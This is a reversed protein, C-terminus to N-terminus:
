GGRTSPGGAAPTQPKVADPAPVGPVPYLPTWPSPGDRTPPAGPVDGKTWWAARYPLGDKLVRAGQRYATARSWAPHTGPASRAIVPPRDGRLVPGVLAWPHNTVDVPADPTAGQTFWRAQWVAQHWVIKTGTTYGGAPTWVPYPSKAPDDVSAVTARPQAAESPTRRAAARANGALRGLVRTFEHDEQKVGSCLNSRTGVVLFTVGCPADRNLSWMSVRGLAKQRAFAAVRRAGAVSLREAPVDNQGIMVTVGLRRWVDAAPLARGRAAYLAGLQAHSARLAATIAGPMDTHADGGFDMAMVNVGAVDIGAALTGRVFAVADAQLGTPLVPVTLWVALRGGSARAERQLTAIVAARRANAVVNRLAWGEVDIDITDASYRDLTERYARALAGPDRCTLALESNAQGGFSVIADGGQGRVQAVRRDLDLVAAADDLSHFGGWSPRCGDKPDAVVFGLVLDRALHVARDQFALTPTLTVDVYPAFWTGSAAPRPEDTTSRASGPPSVALWAGAAVLVCVALALAVRVPSLRPEPADGLTSPDPGPPVPAPRSARPPLGDRSM